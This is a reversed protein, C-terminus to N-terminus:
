PRVTSGCGAPPTASRFGTPDTTTAAQAAHGRHRRRQLRRSAPTGAYLAHHGARGGPLSARSPLATGRDGGLLAGASPLTQGLVRSRNGREGHDVHRDSGLYVSDLAREFPNAESVARVARRHSGDDLFSVCPEDRATTRCRRAAHARGRAPQDGTGPRVGRQAKSQERGGPFARRELPARRRARGHSGFAHRRGAIAADVPGAGRDCRTRGRALVCRGPLRRRVRRRQTRDHGGPSHGVAGVLRAVAYEIVFLAPQALRTDILSRAAEGSESGDPYLSARLDAGLHTKLIESCTDVDGRFAEDAQYLGAGMNLVQSGQGPFMFVVPAAPGEHVRTIVRRSDRTELLRRADQLDACALTRRHGFARRGAQLTYAVSGLDIEPHENLHRALNDTAQELATETRASLVLLHGGARREPTAAAPPAEELVVHANTGGVGFASVGARRPATGNKWPSLRTNVYFPSNALDINPNPARFNIAPPLQEHFLAHAVNILGTVGSAIDLHGVNMKATGLACFGKAKTGTRFARSLAAFEIPDGLPTATGHAEIYAISEPQVGAMAQAMAIVSAQGEVSPATYGIKASGDNNLAFGKIVAYIHDGEALADELRKLLVVASGSGFVTGQAEADFTRCHGDKSGMGGDQYFYGRKQPFTISVGGALAMDSQYSLLGQCAQCVAVLSTSCGCQVTFSPGKLNLKYSVRTALFDHNTGLVTPYHGVQYAGTYDEIFERDVCLNRLFYTNPSCGAYVGIPGSYAQPDYGADELAEWCNELFVRQQPDILEAETPLIGFFGADFYDADEITSRARIYDPNAALASASAVELENPDFHSVCEVGDRINRWFESVNRAPFGGPWVSSPWATWLIAQNENM